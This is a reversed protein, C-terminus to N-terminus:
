GSSDRGIQPGYWPTSPPRPAQSSARLCPDARCCVFRCLV